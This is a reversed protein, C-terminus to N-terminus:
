IMEVIEVKLWSLRTAVTWAITKLYYVEAGALHTVPADKSTQIAQIVAAAGKTGSRNILAYNRTSRREPPLQERSSTAPTCVDQIAGGLYGSATPLQLMQANSVKIKIEM